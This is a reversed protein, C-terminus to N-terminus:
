QFLDSLKLRGFNLLQNTYPESSAPVLLARPGRSSWVAYREATSKSAHGLSALRGAELLQM